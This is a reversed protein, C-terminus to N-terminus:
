IGKGQLVVTRQSGLMQEKLPMLTKDMGNFWVPEHVKSLVNTLIDARDGIAIMVLLDDKDKLNALITKLDGVTLYEQGEITISM